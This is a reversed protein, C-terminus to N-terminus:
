LSSEELPVVCFDGTPCYQTRKTRVVKNHVTLYLRHERAARNIRGYLTNPTTPLGDLILTVASGDTYMIPTKKYTALIM